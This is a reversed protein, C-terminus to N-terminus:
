GAKVPPRCLLMLLSGVLAIGCAIVVAAGYGGNVDYLWGAIFAGFYPFGSTIPNAVASIKHFSEVGFYNGM